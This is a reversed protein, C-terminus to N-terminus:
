RHTISSQRRCAAQLALKVASPANDSADASAVAGALPQFNAGVAAAKLAPLDREEEKLPLPGALHVEGAVVQHDSPVLRM